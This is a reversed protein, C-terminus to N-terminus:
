RAGGPPCHDIQAIGDANNGGISFLSRFHRRRTIAACLDALVGRVTGVLPSHVHFFDSVLERWARVTVPRDVVGLSSEREWFPARTEFREVAEASYGFLLGHIRERQVMPVVASLTWRYLDAVWGSAAYGCDAMGDGHPIVFPVAGPSYAGGMTLAYEAESSCESAISAVLALPRVGREVLYAAEACGEWPAASM